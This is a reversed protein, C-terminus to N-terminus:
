PLSDPPRYAEPAFLFAPPAAGIELSRSRERVAFANKMFPLIEWVREDSLELGAAAALAEMRSHIHRDQDNM